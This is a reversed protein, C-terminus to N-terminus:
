GRDCWYADEITRTRGKFTPQKKCIFCQNTAQCGCRPRARFGASAVEQVIAMKCKQNAIM